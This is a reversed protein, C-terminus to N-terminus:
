FTQKTGKDFLSAKCDQLVGGCYPILTGCGRKFGIIGWLERWHSFPVTQSALCWPPDCRLFEQELVFTHWLFLGVLCRLVVMNHLFGMSGCMKWKQKKWHFYTHRTLLQDLNELKKTKRFGWHWHTNTILTISATNDPRPEWLAPGGCVDWCAPSPSHSHCFSTAFNCIWCAIGGSSPLSPLM